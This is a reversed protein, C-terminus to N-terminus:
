NRAARSESPSTLKSLQRIEARTLSVEVRRQRADVRKVTNLPVCLRESLLFRRALAVIETVCLSDAEYVLDTIEGM